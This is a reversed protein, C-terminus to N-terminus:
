ALKMEGTTRMDAATHFPLIVEAVVGGGDASRLSFQQDEGYLQELRARTNRLGLGADAAGAPYTATAGGQLGPGFDRIRLVLNEAVRSASIELKGSGDQENVGYKLANEVLTQLMLNPVLADNASDDIHRSVDLRGQFRIQMIEMYRDLFELERALSVESESGEDLSYRLLESLRAIMRRVGRPDREVLASIANLTNFLFHPNLQSRLASLRAEVLQAQLKASQTLLLTAEDRRLQYRLFYDRAFGAALVAVFVILDDIWWLRTIGSLLTPEFAPAGPPPERPAYLVQFRMFDILMSVVNAIVIGVVAYMLIRRLWTGRELTYNSCLWFVIPTVLAWLYCQVFALAVPAAPLLPQLGRGRPEIIGNVATLLAILTWFLFVQLLQRPEFASSPQAGESTSLPVAASSPRFHSQTSVATHTVVSPQQVGGTRAFSEARTVGQIDGIARPRRPHCLRAWGSREHRFVPLEPCSRATRSM